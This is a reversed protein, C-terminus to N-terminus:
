RNDKSNNFIKKFFANGKRIGWVFPSLIWTCLAVWVPSITKLYFLSGFLMGGLIYGRIEGRNYTLLLYFLAITMGLWYMADEFNLWRKKHHILNRLIKFIDYIFCMGIGWSISLVCLYFQNQVASSM